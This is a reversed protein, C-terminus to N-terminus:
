STLLWCFSQLDKQYLYQNLFSNSTLLGSLMCHSYYWFVWTSSIFPLNRNVGV